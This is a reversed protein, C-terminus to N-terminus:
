YKNKIMLRIGEKMESELVNIQYNAIITVFQRIKDYHDLQQLKTLTKNLITTNVITELRTEKLYTLIQDFEDYNYLERIDVNHTQM